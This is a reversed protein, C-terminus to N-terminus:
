LGKDRLIKLIRVDEDSLGLMQRHRMMFDKVHTEASGFGSNGLRDVIGLRAQTGHLFEELLAAKSPNERLVISSNNVGGVSAEAGFYDLMRLEDSGPRAIVVARKAGVATLLEKSALEVGMLESPSRLSGLGISGVANGVKDFSDALGSEVLLSDVVKEARLLGGAAVAGRVVATPGILGAITGSAEQLGNDYEAVRGTVKEYQAFMRDSVDADFLSVVGAAAYGTMRYALAATEPIANALGKASGIGVDGFFEGVHQMQEGYSMPPRYAAPDTMTSRGAFPYRGHESAPAPNVFGRGGGAGTYTEATQQAALAERQARGGSEAAIARGGLQAASTDSLDFRLVQGPQVMPVGQANLRVQGSALLQGYAATQEQASLGAAALAALPGQGKGVVAEGTTRAEPPMSGTLSMGGDIEDSWNSLADGSVRLGQSSRGPQLGQAQTPDVDSAGLTQVWENNPKDGPTPQSAKQYQEELVGSLFDNAFGSAPDNSGAVRLASAAARSMLKLASSQEPSLDKLERIQSDLHAGVEGAVSALASNIFGDKFKGGTAEQLVGQLGAKGFNALSRTGLDTSQLMERMGSFEMVGSTIGGTLASRLMSGFNLEGTSALQTISSGLAGMVAGQVFTGAGAQALFNGVPPLGIFSLAAGFLTPMAKDLFSSSPRINNELDTSWCNVPDFWLYENNILRRNQEPTLQTKELTSERWGGQSGNDDVTQSGIVLKSEGLSYHAPTIDPGIDSDGHQVAEHFQLPDKGHLSAFAKQAPSDGAAYAKAFEAPDAFRWENRAGPVFQNAKSSAATTQEADVPHRVHLLSQESVGGNESYGSCLQVLESGAVGPGPHQQAEDLAILFQGRVNNQAEQLQTLRAGLDAGFRAQIGSGVDTGTNLPALPPGFQAIMEQNAPEALLLELAAIEMASAKPAAVATAADPSAAPMASEPAIQLPKTHVLEVAEGTAPDMLLPKNYGIDFHPAGDIQLPKNVGYDVPGSGDLSIQLPKTHMVELAEGTAPDVLLPKTYLIEFGPAPGQQLPQPEATDYYGASGDQQQPPSDLTGGNDPNGPAYADVSSPIIPEITPTDWVAAAGSSTVQM